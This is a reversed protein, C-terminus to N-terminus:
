RLLYGDATEVEEDVIDLGVQCAYYGINNVVSEKERHRDWTYVKPQERWIWAPAEKQLRHFFAWGSWLSDINLSLQNSTVGGSVMAALLLWKLLLPLYPYAISPSAVWIGM